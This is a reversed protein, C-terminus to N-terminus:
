DSEKFKGVLHGSQLNGSSRYYKQDTFFNKSFRFQTEYTFHMGKKRLFELLLFFIQEHYQDIFFVQSIKFSLLNLLSVCVSLYHLSSYNWNRFSNKSHELTLSISFSISISISICKYKQYLKFSFFFLFPYCYFNPL